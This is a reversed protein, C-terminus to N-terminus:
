GRLQDVSQIKGNSADVLAQRRKKPVGRHKWGHVAPQSIGVVAAIASETEWIELLKKFGKKM